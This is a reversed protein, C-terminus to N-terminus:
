PQNSSQKAASGPLASRITKPRAMSVSGFICVELFIKCPPTDRAAALAFMAALTAIFAVPVLNALMKRLSSSLFTARSFSSFMSSMTSCRLEMRPAASLNVCCSTERSWPMIFGFSLSASLSRMRFRETVIGCGCTTSISLLSNPASQCFCSSKKLGVGKAAALMPWTCQAVTLSLGTTSLICNGPTFSAIALSRLEIEVSIFRKTLFPCASPLIKVSMYVSIYVRSHSYLVSAAFQM